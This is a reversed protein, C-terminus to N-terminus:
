LLRQAARNHIVALAQRGGNMLMKGFAPSAYMFPGLMAMHQIEEGSLPHVGAVLETARVRHEFARWTTHLAQSAVSDFITGIEASSSDRAPVSM